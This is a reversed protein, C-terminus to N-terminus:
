KSTSDVEHNMDKEIILFPYEKELNSNLIQDYAYVRLYDQVSSMPYDQIGHRKIFDDLGNINFRVLKCNLVRDSMDGTGKICVQVPRLDVSKIKIKIPTTSFWGCRKDLKIREGTFQNWGYAYSYNEVYDLTFLFYIGYSVLSALMIVLVVILKKM